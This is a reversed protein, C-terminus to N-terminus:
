LQLEPGTCCLCTESKVLTCFKVLGPNYRYFHLAYVQISCLLSSVGYVRATSSMEGGKSIWLLVRALALVNTECSESGRM